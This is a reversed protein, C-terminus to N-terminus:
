KLKKKETIIEGGAVHKIHLNEMKRSGINGITDNRIGNHLLLTTSYASCTYFSYHHLTKIITQRHTILAVISAPSSCNYNIIRGKM